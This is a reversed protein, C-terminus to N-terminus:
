RWVKEPPGSKFFESPRQHIAELNIDPWRVMLECHGIPIRLATFLTHGAAKWNHWFDVDPDRQEHGYRRQMWPQPLAKLKSARLLTLGFHASASEMLEAQMLDERRVESVKAGSAAQVTWMPRDHWRATQIPAIADAEPHRAALDLLGLVQDADFVSDYDATLIWEPDSAELSEEIAQILNADWYAGTIRRVPMMRGLYSVACEWFDNFGLRPMSIVAACKPWVDYPKTGCLNLSIPLRSCDDIADQWRRIGVLGAGRLAAALTEEDFLAKHFDHEDVQGGMVYGETPIPAGALYQEAIVQFDPVAIKLVGGPKLVRVWEQLVGAIQSHPFHELVHSARVEEVSGERLGNPAEDNIYINALNSADHGREIDVGAYGDHEVGGDGINLKM